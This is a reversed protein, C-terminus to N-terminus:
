PAPGFDTDFQVTFLRDRHAELTEDTPSCRTHWAIDADPPAYSTARRPMIRRAQRLHPTVGSDTGCTRADGGQHDILM